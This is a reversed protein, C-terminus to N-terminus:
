KEDIIESVGGEDDKVFVIIRGNGEISYTDGDSILLNEGTKLEKKEGNHTVTILGNEIYLYESRNKDKAIKGAEPYRGHLTVLAIYYSDGFVKHVEVESDQELVYKTINSM